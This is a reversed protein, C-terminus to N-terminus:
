TNRFAEDCRPDGMREVFVGGVIECGSENCVIFWNGCRLSFRCWSISISSSFQAAEMMKAESIGRHMTVMEGCMTSEEVEGRKYAAYRERLPRELSGAM